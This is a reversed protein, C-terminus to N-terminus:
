RRGRPSRRGSRPRRALGWAGLGVGAVELCSVELHVGHHDWPREGQDVLLQDRLDFRFPAVKLEVSVVGDQHRFGKCEGEGGGVEEPRPPHNLDRPGLPPFM